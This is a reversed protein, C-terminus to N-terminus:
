YLIGLGTGLWYPFVYEFCMLFIYIYFVLNEKIKKEPEQKTPLWDSLARRM